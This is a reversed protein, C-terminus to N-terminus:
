LFLVLLAGGLLVRYVAFVTFSAKELWKMLLAIAAVATVFSAGAVIMVPQWSIGAAELGLVGILGSGLIAPISLLMSFRAAEGREIHLFRSMTMTIGSRSTGPILALIQSLGILLAQGLTQDKLTRENRGFKDAIYLVVGFGLTAWGIVVPNRVHEAYDLKALVFGVIIIPITALVLQCFLRTHLTAGKAPYVVVDRGINWLDRWFYAVVALLSGVHAAIDIEQGQDELNMLHPFLALHGSSSIPLFETIGQIIGLLLLTSPLM